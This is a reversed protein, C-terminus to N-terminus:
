HRSVDSPVTLDAIRDSIHLPLGRPDGCYIYDMTVGHKVSLVMAFELDFPRYGREYNSLRQSSIGLSKALQAQTKGIAERSQSLRRGVQRQWVDDRKIKMKM